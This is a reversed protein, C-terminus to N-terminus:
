NSGVPRVFFLAIEGPEVSVPDYLSTDFGCWAFGLHRYFEIASANVTQTEVWLCRMGAAQAEALASEVLLRGVGQGRVRREVYLHELRARRNWAEYRMAAVGVIAGDHVAVRAWDAQALPEQDAALDYTKTLPPLQTMADLAVSQGEWILRYVRDVTLSTDLVGVAVRDGPWELNRLSIL